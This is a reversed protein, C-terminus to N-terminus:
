VMLHRRVNVRVGQRPAMNKYSTGEKKRRAPLPTGAKSDHEILNFTNSLNSGDTIDITPPWKFLASFM